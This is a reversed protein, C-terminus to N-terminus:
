LVLWGVVIGILFAILLDQEKLKLVVDKVKLALAKLKNM